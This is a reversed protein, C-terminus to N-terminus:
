IMCKMELIRAYEAAVQANVRSKEFLEFCHRRAAQGMRAREEPHDLMRRFAAELARADRPPVLLGTEGDAVADTLGYIATGVTPLGMAAAEIVVTGFGERYSPLCFIDSIALYKEPQPAYGLYHIRPCQLADDLDFVSIGGRERDHPGVLLLDVDYGASLLGRFADILEAMGKDPSIRGVFVLLTSTPAIGLSQRIERKMETTQLDPDFREMDVGALSGHGIVSIKRAPLIGESALFAAQSGSDAYCKTNLYGILRDSARSAWRMPGKLTVWPQGTFTHLRVPIRAAFAALATLLGAKPTTSHVLDFRHTLFFKTLKLLAALDSGPTLSRPIEIIEYRLRPGTRVKAVEPGASSVMVVSMGIDRFYEAQHGLQNVLHYSVTAIMAIRRGALSHIGPVPEPSQKTRSLNM